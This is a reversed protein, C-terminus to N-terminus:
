HSKQPLSRKTSFSTYLHPPTRMVCMKKVYKISLHYWIHVWIIGCKVCIQTIRSAKLQAAREAFSGSMQSSKQPFFVYLSSADWSEVFSVPHRPTMPHRMKVPWKGCFLGIILPEKASLSRCSMVRRIICPPASDYSAKDTYTMKRLRARYSAAKKRFSVQLKLRGMFRRWGTDNTSDYSAKDKYTVKQLHCGFHTARKWFSVQLKLCGIFRRWGTDYVYRRSMTVYM